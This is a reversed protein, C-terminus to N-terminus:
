EKGFREYFTNTFLEQPDYRRKATWFEDISPYARRLQDPTYHLQYPLFFTGGHDLALDIIRRTTEGMQRNGEPTTPQNVYLVIAFMETPAYNLTNSEGHVVRVSANLLNVDNDRVIGRLGDVFAILQDRPVYYEQLIDTDNPLNNKLYPVSDHMPENRSVLCAEGDKMAQNRTVSCSEVRPEVHKETFWKIRKAISGHKSANLILRRLKVNSVETLPPITADAADTETYTYVIMEDLLSGPATSLHGYMLGVKPDNAITNQFLAPFEQYRILQRGSEYVVNDTIELEADLVIGFLGYGGVVLDFLERNETRSVRMIEGSPLLVRMWRITQGIAGVQHDMGHANVSISGGVTFIDTSQMAKVAFRPHLLNQIDHWTAGSQVRITRANPDLAISNFQRMDLVLANRSFAQGGMSHRVGAISVKLGNARAYELATKIDDESRIHVIGHVPTQNLCSADNITGGQQAWRPAAPRTAFAIRAAVPRDTLLSATASTGAFPARAREATAPDANEIMPPCSKEGVPDASYQYAKQGAFVGTSAVVLAFISRRKNWGPRVKRLRQM